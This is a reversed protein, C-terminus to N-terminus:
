YETVYANYNKGTLAASAAFEVEVHTFGFTNLILSAGTTGGGPIYMYPITTVTATAGTLVPQFSAGVTVSPLLTTAPYLAVGNITSSQTGSATITGYYLLSPVYKNDRTKNWGSIRVLLGTPISATLVDIWFSFKINPSGNLPIVTHGTTQPITTSISHAELATSESASTINTTPSLLYTDSLAYKQTSYTSTRIMTHGKITKITQFLAYADQSM